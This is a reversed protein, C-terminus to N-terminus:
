EQPSQFVIFLDMQRSTTILSLHDESIWIPPPCSVPSSRFKPVISKRKFHPSQVIIEAISPTLMVCEGMHPEQLEGNARGYEAQSAAAAPSWYSYKQNVLNSIYICSIPLDLPAVSFQRSPGARESKCGTGTLKVEFIPRWQSSLM